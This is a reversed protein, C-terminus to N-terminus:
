TAAGRKRKVPARDVHDGRWRWRGFVAATLKAAFDRIPHSTPAAQPRLAPKRSTAAKRGQTRRATM